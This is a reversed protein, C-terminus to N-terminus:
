KLKSWQTAFYLLGFTAFNQQVYCLLEQKINVFNVSIILLIVFVYMYLYVQFVDSVSYKVELCYRNSMTDTNANRKHM